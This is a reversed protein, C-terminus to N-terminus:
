SEILRFLKLVTPFLSQGDARELVDGKKAFGSFMTVYISNSSDTVSVEVGNIVLNRNINNSAIVCYVIYCDETLTVTPADTTFINGHAYDPFLIKHVADSSVAHLNGEEVVDVPQSLEDGTDPTAVLQGEELNALDAEVDAVSDYIPIKNSEIPSLTQQNGTGSTSFTKM